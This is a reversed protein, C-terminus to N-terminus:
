TSLKRIVKTRIKKQRGDHSLGTTLMAYLLVCTELSCFPVLYQTPANPVVTFLKESAVQAGSQLRYVWCSHSRRSSPDM